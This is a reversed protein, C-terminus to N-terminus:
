TNTTDNHWRGSTVTMPAEFRLWHASALTKALWGSPLAPTSRKWRSWHLRLRLKWCTLFHSFFGFSLATTNTKFLESQTWGCAAAGILNNKHPPARGWPKKQRVLMIQYDIWWMFSFVELLKYFYEDNTCHQCDVYLECWITANIMVM